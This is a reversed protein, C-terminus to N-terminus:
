PKYESRLAAYVELDLYEEWKLIHERLHAEHQMGIKRLVAGSAPNNSFHSAHIRHLGLVEFGYQLAARAAETAYGNGWYPVGLWYGLEARNQDRELRLGDGGILAGDPRLTIAWRVEAGTEIRAFFAEADSASYPHPIRLTTAAVEQAGILPVLAPIDARIYPRLLLREMLLTPVENKM